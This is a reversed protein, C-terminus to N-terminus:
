PEFRQPPRTERSTHLGDLVQGVLVMAPSRVGDRGISEGLTALRHLTIRQQPDVGKGRDRRANCAGTGASVARSTCSGGEPGPMPVMMAQPRASARDFLWAGYADSQAQRCLRKPLGKGVLDDAFVLAAREVVRAARPTPLDPDGPGAGVPYMTQPVIDRGRTLLPIPGREISFPARDRFVAGRMERAQGPPIPM